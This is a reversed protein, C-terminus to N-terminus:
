KNGCAKTLQVYANVEGGGGWPEMLHKLYIITLHKLVVLLCPGGSFFTKLVFVPARFHQNQQDFRV